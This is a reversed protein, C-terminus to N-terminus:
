YLMGNVVYSTDENGFSIVPVLTPLIQLYNDGSPLTLKGLNNSKDSNIFFMKGYVNMHGKTPMNSKDFSQSEKKM